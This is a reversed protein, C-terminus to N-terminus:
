WILNDIVSNIKNFDFKFKLSFQKNDIRIEEYESTNRIRRLKKTKLITIKDEGSISNNLNAVFNEITNTHSSEKNVVEKNYFGERKSVYIIKQYICYYYRSAAVDYYKKKEAWEGTKYNEEAKEKLIEIGM